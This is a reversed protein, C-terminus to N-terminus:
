CASAIHRALTLKSKTPQITEMPPVQETGTAGNLYLPERESNLGDLGESCYLEHTDFQMDGLIDIELESLQMKVHVMILLM